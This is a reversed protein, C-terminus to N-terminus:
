GPVADNEQEEQPDENKEGAQREPLHPATMIKLEDDTLARVIDLDHGRSFKHFAKGEAWLPHSTADIVPLGLERCEDRSIVFGHTPYGHTLMTLMIEVQQAGLLHDKNELNRSALMRKAYKEAVRLQNVARHILQPDLKAVAPKMFEATFNFMEHLVSARTLGTYKLVKPGGSLVIDIAENALQSIARASDLGSIQLNERDPHPIQVDLPGLESSASMFIADMGLMLLTAASKAYDPVIGRVSAARERLVLMLKYATHADGGPSDLWVDIGINERAGLNQADLEDIVENITDRELSGDSSFQYIFLNIRNITHPEAIPQVVEPNAPQGDQKPQKKPM